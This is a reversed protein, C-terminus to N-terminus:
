FAEAVRKRGFNGSAQLAIHKHRERCHSDPKMRKHPEDHCSAKKLRQATNADFVRRFHSLFAETTYDEPIMNNQRKRLAVDRPYTRPCSATVLGARSRVVASAPTEGDDDSMEGENSILASRMLSEVSTKRRVRRTWLVATNEAAAM